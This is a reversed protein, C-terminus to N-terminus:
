VAAENKCTRGECEWEIERPTGGSREPCAILAIRCSAEADPWEANLM